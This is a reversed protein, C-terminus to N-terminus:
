IAEARFNHQRLVAAKWFRVPGPSRAGPWAWKRGDHWGIRAGQREIKMKQLAGRWLAAIEGAACTVAPQSQAYGGRRMGRLFNKQKRQRCNGCQVM